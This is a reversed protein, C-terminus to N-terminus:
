KRKPTSIYSQAKPNAKKTYEKQGRLSGKERVYIGM